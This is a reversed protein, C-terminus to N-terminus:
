AHLTKQSVHSKQSNHNAVSFRRLFAAGQFIFKEWSENRPTAGAIIFLLDKKLASRFTHKFMLIQM